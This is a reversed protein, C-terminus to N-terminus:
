GVPSAQVPDTIADTEFPVRKTPDREWRMTPNQSRGAEALASMAHAPTDYREDPVNEPLAEGAHWELPVTLLSCTGDSWVHLVVKTLAPM